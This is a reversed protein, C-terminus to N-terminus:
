AIYLLISVTLNLIPRESRQAMQPMVEVALPTIAISVMSLACTMVAAFALRTKAMRTFQLAIPTDPIAPTLPFIRM